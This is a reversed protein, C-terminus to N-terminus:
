SAAALMKRAAELDRAIQAALSEFNEFKMEDRLRWYFVVAIEAEYINGSFGDIHVEIARGAREITPRIGISCAGRFSQNGVSVRVAYIGDKPVIQRPAVEINATPFGLKRGLGSGRVVRGLLVFPRGLLRAASEVDGRAIANRIRTSSVPAGHLTTPEVGVVRFGKEKGHKRLLDIDGARKRGFRFDTGVVVAAARLREVLIRDVFEEPSLDALERDFPEMVILDAGAEDLIQIRQELTNIYLPAREPALLELPHRDFTLVVAPCGIREAESQLVALLSRHGLHVGDFMGISVASKVLDESVSDINVVTAM